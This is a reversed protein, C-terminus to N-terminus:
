SLCKMHLGVLAWVWSGDTDLEGVRPWQGGARVFYIESSSPVLYTLSIAGMAWFNSGNSLIALGSGSVRGQRKKGSSVVIFAKGWTERREEQRGVWMPAVSQPGTYHPM